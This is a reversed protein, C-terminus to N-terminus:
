GCHQEHCWLAERGWQARGAWLHHHQREQDDLRAKWRSVYTQDQERHGGVVPPPSTLAFLFQHNKNTCLHKCLFLSLFSLCKCFCLGSKGCAPCLRRARHAREHGSRQQLSLHHCWGWCVSLHLHCNSVGWPVGGGAPEPSQDGPWFWYRLNLFWHIKKRSYASKKSMMYLM